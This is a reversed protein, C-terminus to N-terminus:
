IQKKVCNTYTYIALLICIPLNYFQMDNLIYECFYIYVDRLFNSPRGTPHTLPVPCSIDICILLCYTIVALFCVPYM